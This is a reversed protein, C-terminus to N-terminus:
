GRAPQSKLQRMFEGFHPTLCAFLPPGRHTLMVEGFLKLGVAFAAAADADFYGRSRIRDVVSLIDDHNLTEFRLSAPTVPPNGNKDSLQEVSIRYRNQKM